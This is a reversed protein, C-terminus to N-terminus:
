LTLAAAHPAAVYIFLIFAFHLPVPASL